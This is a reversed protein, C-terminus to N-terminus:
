GVVRGSGPEVIQALIRAYDELFKAIAADDFLDTKYNVAGTVKASLERLQINVDLRSIAIGPDEARQKGSWSAITLGNAEIPPTIQNRYNLMVQYLPAHKGHKRELLTELHEFPLDQHAYAAVSAARVQSIVESFSMRPQIRARLVLANVFYGILGATGPQGRNAVLTGIRIDTKGSYRHLLIALAAVFVMFPTCDQERAFAKVSAFLQDNIEIPRRSSHFRVVKKNKGGRRLDLPVARTGLQKLWYSIQKKFFGNELSQRQWHTFDAFQVGLKPLPSPLGRSFADYLAALERRFVGMSWQDSVMHHTTVLLIHRAEACRLLKIRMLPPKELDFSDAADQRSIQELKMERQPEPLRTLDVLPLKVTANRRTFQKPGGAGDLFGTRLTAHRGVIEQIARRLAVENLAGDLRYAYPMNLFDGGGFLQSFLFLPEQALSLPRYRERAM